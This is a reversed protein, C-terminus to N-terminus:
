FCFLISSDCAESRLTTTPILCDSVRLAVLVARACLFCSAFILPTITEAAMMIIEWRQLGNEVMWFFRQFTPILGPTTACAQLGLVKPPQGSILLELGDQGFQRFGTEVLFVFILQTHHCM